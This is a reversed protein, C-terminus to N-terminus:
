PRFQITDNSQIWFQEEPESGGCLLRNNLRCLDLFGEIDDPNRIWKQYEAVWSMWLPRDTLDVDLDRMVDYFLQPHFQDACHDLVATRLDSLSVNAHPMRVVDAMDRLKNIASLRQIFAALDKRECRALVGHAALMNLVAERTETNRAGSADEIMRESIPWVYPIGADTRVCGYQNEIWRRLSSLIQKNLM